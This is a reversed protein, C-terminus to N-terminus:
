ARHDAAHQERSEQLEKLLRWTKMSRAHIINWQDNNACGWRHEGPILFEEIDAPTDTAAPTPPYEDLSVKPTIQPASYVNGVRRRVFHGGGIAPAVYLAKVWENSIWAWCPQNKTPMM